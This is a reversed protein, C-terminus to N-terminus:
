YIILLYSLKTAITSNFEDWVVFLVGGGVTKALQRFALILNCVKAHIDHVRALSEFINTPYYFLYDVLRFYQLWPLRSMKTLLLFVVKSVVPLEYFQCM